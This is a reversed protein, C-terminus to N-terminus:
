TRKASTRREDAGASRALAATTSTVLRRNTLAYVCTAGVVLKVGDSSAYWRLWACAAAPSARGRPASEGVRAGRAVPSAQPAADRGDDVMRLAEADPVGARRGRARARLDLRALRRIRLEADVRAEDPRQEEGQPRDREYADDQRADRPDSGREGGHQQERQLGVDEPHRPERVDDPRQ